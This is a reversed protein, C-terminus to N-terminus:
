HGSGRELKVTSREQWEEDDYKEDYLEDVADRETIFVM